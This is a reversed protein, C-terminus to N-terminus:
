FVYVSHNFQVFKQANGTRAQETMIYVTAGDVGAHITAGTSTVAEASDDATLVELADAKSIRDHFVDAMAFGNFFGCRAAEFFDFYETQKQREQEAQAQQKAITAAGPKRGGGHRAPQNYKSFKM